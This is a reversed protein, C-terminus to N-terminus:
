MQPMAQEPVGQGLGALGTLGGGMGAEGEPAPALGQGAGPMQPMAQQTPAQGYEGQMMPNFGTAQRIKSRLEPRIHIGTTNLFEEIDYVGIQLLQIAYNIRAVTNHPLDAQSEVKVDWLLDRMGESWLLWEGDGWQRNVRPDQFEYFQQIMYIELRAQRRYSEDLALMKFSQRTLAAAQLSNALVGSMGSKSEGLMVDQVGAMDARGHNEMERMLM